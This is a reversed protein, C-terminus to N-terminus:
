PALHELMAATVEEAREVNALHAAHEIVVRRAGPVAAAIADGHEPPTARDERAAIVLAPATISALRDRLDMDRIAACCAVYGDAPVARLMAGFRRVVGPDAAPTFWRGLTADAIADTGGARVDAARKRWMEPPGLRASTCCLVVREVRDPAAAALAMATMGGLSVGAVSAREIGLDDLLGLLDAALGDITCEGDPVPSAGHGRTDYRVVRFREALAPMQPDWMTMDTGLSNSLVVVPAETTGEIRHALDTV